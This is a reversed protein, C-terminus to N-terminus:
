EHGYEQKKNIPQLEKVIFPCVDCCGVDCCPTCTQEDDCEQEEETNELLPFSWRESRPKRALDQSVQPFNDLWREWVRQPPPKWPNNEKAWQAM